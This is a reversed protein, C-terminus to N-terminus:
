TDSDMMNCYLLLCQNKHTIYLYKYNYLVSEYTIFVIYAMVAMHCLQSYYTLTSLIIPVAFSVERWGEEGEM